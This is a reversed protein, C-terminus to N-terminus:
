KLKVELQEFYDNKAAQDEIKKIQGLNVDYFKHGDNDRRANIIGRQALREYEPQIEEFLKGLDTKIRNKFLHEELDPAGAQEKVLKALFDILEEERGTFESDVNFVDMGLKSKTKQRCYAAFDEFEPIDEIILKRGKQSIESRAISTISLKNLVKDVHSSPINLITSIEEVTSKWILSNDGVKDGIQRFLLELLVIIQRGTDETVASGIKKASDRLREVLIQYFSQMWGPLENLKKQFMMQSIEVCQTRSKSIVTASRPRGDILSMEGFIAGEKLTAIVVMKNGSKVQIEVIGSRIIFMSKGPDDEHFIVDGANFIKLSHDEVFGM